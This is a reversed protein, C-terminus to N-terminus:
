FVFRKLVKDARELIKNVKGSQLNGEIVAEVIKMRFIVDQNLTRLPPSTNFFVVFLPAENENTFKIHFYTPPSTPCKYAPVINVSGSEEALVYTKLKGTVTNELFSIEQGQDSNQILKFGRQCM